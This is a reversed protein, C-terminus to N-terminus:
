NFPITDANTGFGLQKGLYIPYLSAPRHGAYVDPRTLAEYGGPNIVLKGKLAGFGFQEWNRVVNSPWGHSLNNDAFYHLIVNAAPLLLVLSLLGVVRKQLTMDM